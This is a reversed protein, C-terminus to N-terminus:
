ERFKVGDVRAVLERRQAVVEGLQWHVRPQALHHEVAGHERAEVGHQGDGRADPEPRGEDGRHVLPVLSVLRLPLDRAVAGGRVVQREDPRVRSPDAGLSAPPTELPVKEGLREQGRLRQPLDALHPLLVHLEQVLDPKKARAGTQEPTLLVLVVPRLIELASAVCRGVLSACEVRGGRRENRSGALTSLCCGRLACVRSAPQFGRRLSRQGRRADVGSVFGEHARHNARTEKGVDGDHLADAPGPAFRAPPTAPRLRALRADAGLAVAVRIQM